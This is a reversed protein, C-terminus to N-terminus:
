ARGGPRRAPLQRRLRRQVEEVAGTGDIEVVPVASRRRYWELVPETQRRYVELRRRVTEPRDDERQYLEGGCQTCDEGDPAGQVNGCDRCVRRSSLRRVLEEEPVGLYFVADIEEGRQRLVDRLGMAQELTRPFGDFVFGDAAEPRELAERVIGLIVEDPVLEGADMYEAARRGLETGERRADRLMDGTGYRPVGLEDALREGQTGKGAGPPGMLILRM